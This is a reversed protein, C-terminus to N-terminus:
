KCSNTMKISYKEADKIDDFLSLKTGRKPFQDTRFKELYNEVERNVGTLNDTYDSSIKIIGGVNFDRSDVRFFTKDM